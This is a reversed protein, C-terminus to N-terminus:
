RKLDKKMISSYCIPCRSWDKESLSLYHLICAWCFIHGCRTIKAAIPPYLCIPCSPVEHSFIRVQEVYDWNVLIDPDTFHISYDNEESVVFQCNAQLFLEKNFPKNGWKNKRGWNGQGNHHGSFQGRPEFTFNLLHNLSIKKPGSYQAPSFEARQNETVEEKRGYTYQKNGGRQPPVKNFTKSKQPGSRRYQGTTTENKPYSNERKRSYRQKSNNGNKQESKPKSEGAPGTSGSRNQNKSSSSSGPDMDTPSSQSSLPM